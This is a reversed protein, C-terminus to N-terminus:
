LSTWSMEYPELTTLFLLCVYTHFLYRLVLKGTDAPYQARSLAAVSIALGVAMLTDGVKILPRQLGPGNVIM